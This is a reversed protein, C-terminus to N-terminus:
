NIPGMWSMAPLLEILNTINEISKGQMKVLERTVNLHGEEINLSKRYNQEFNEIFMTLNNLAVEHKRALNRASNPDVMQKM